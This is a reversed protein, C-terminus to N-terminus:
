RKGRIVGVVTGTFTVIDPGSRFTDRFTCTIAGSPIRANGKTETESEVVQGNVTVTFQFQYPIILRHTGVIFGPTFTGRGPAPVIQLEGGPCQVLIPEQAQPSKVPAATAAPAGLLVAGACLLAIITTKVFTGM